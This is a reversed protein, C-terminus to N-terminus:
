GGAPIVSIERAERAKLVRRAKPGYSATVEGPTRDLEPFMTLIERRSDAALSRLSMKGPYLSEALAGNAWVMEHQDFFMHYYSVEEVKTDVIVSKDNVLHKAPVLAGQSEGTLAEVLPGDVFVRHQPSVSLARTNGLTNKRFKVPRYEPHLRLDSKYYTRKGIWRIPRPGHDATEVLDGIQLSEIRKEGEPTLIKTGETFCVISVSAFGILSFRLEDGSADFLRLTASEPGTITLSYTISDNLKLRLSDNGDANGWRLTYTVVGKNKKTGGFDTAQIDLAVVDDASGYGSTTESSNFTRTGGKKLYLTPATDLITIRYTDASTSTSSADPLGAWNMYIGDGPPDNTTLSPDINWNYTPM